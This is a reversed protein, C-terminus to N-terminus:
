PTKQAAKKRRDLVERVDPQQSLWDRIREPELGGPHLFSLNYYCERVRHMKAIIERLDAERYVMIKEPPLKSWFVGSEGRMTRRVADVTEMDRRVSVKGEALLLADPMEASYGWQNHALKHRDKAVNGTIWVVVEFLEMDQADLVTSAAASAAALQANASTIAEFMALAPAAKASLFRTMVLAIQAEIDSYTAIAEAVLLGLKPREAIATPSLLVTALPRVRSLPQPPM